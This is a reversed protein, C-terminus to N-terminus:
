NVILTKVFTKDAEAIDINSIDEAPLWAINKHETLFIEGNIHTAEYFFLHVTREPYEHIAEGLLKGASIDICLEEKIERVLAQEHTEGKEIKGGPFEWQGGLHSNDPRQAVLFKGSKQM